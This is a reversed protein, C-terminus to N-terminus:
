PLDSEVQASNLLKIQDKDLIGEHIATAVLAGNFGRKKLFLLDDFDRVGGGIIFSVQPFADRLEGYLDDYCGCKSGIRLLDLLIFENVGMDIMKEILKNIPTNQIEPNISILKRNKMDISLIVNEKGLERLADKIVEFSEISETALILKTNPLNKLNIIDYLNRIGADLLILTDPTASILDELLSLSSEENIIADLDAIYIEKFGWENRYFKILSKPSADTLFKSKLPKYFNRMGKKAHVAIGNKIDIVPIVRFENM